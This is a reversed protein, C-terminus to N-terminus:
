DQGNAGKTIQEDPAVEEADADEIPLAPKQLERWVLVTFGPSWGLLLWSAAAISQSIQEVLNM